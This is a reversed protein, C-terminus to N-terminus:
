PIHLFWRRYSANIPTAFHEAVLNSLKYNIFAQKFTVDHSKSYQKNQPFYAQM